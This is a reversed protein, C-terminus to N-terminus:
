SWRWIAITVDDAYQGASEESWRVKCMKVLHVIDGERVYDVVEENSLM